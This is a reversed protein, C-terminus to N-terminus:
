SDGEIGDVYYVESLLPSRSMAEQFSPQGEVVAAWEELTPYDLSWVSAAGHAQFHHAAFRLELVVRGILRDTGDADRESFQRLFLVVAEDSLDPDVDRPLFQFSAVDFGDEVERRLAQKFVKWAPWPDVHDLALGAETLRGQLDACADRILM